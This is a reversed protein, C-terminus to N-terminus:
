LALSIVLLRECPNPLMNNSKAGTTGNGYGISTINHNHQKQNLESIMGQTEPDQESHLKACKDQLM